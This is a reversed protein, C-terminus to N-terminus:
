EGGRRALAVAGLKAPVRGPAAPLPCLGHGVPDQGAPRALREGDVGALGAAGARHHGVVVAAIAARGHAAETGTAATRATVRCHGDGIQQTLPHHGLAQLLRRPGGEPDKPVQPIETISLPSKRQDRACPSFWVCVYRLSPESLRELETKTIRLLSSKGSGWDGLVGVTLPLLRPETLAVILGDVLLDVGLLDVETENDHWM